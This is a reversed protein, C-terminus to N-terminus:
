IYGAASFMLNNYLFTERMPQQPELYKLKEFLEKRKFDSKFWISDHRTVGTRHSLMDRLTVNDNLQDNYFQITPVSDRVPKDWSLKGEEVLMGAAVATFLKTNPAIPSMTAPTFPLKKEYDRFGYGKAFVLKDNVVIGVGVGPANWDKLTKAMYADFGDLRQTVDIAQARGGWALTFLLMGTIRITTM